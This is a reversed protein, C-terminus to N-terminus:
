TPNQKGPWAKKLLGTPKYMNREKVAITEQVDKNAVHVEKHLKFLDTKSNLGAREGKVAEMEDGNDDEDGDAEGDYM